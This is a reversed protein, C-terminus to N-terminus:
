KIRGWLDGYKKGGYWERCPIYGQKGKERNYQLWVYGNAKHVTHYTVYEGNYYKTVLNGKISPQDRVLITTNPYFTGVESYKETSTTVPKSAPKAVAKPTTTQGLYAQIGRFYADAIDSTYQEQKSGFILEFDKNGTMFGNEGLIAPAKTM